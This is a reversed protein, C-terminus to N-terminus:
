DCKPESYLGGVGCPTQRLYKQRRAILPLNSCHQPSRHGDMKVAISFATEIISLFVFWDYIHPPQFEAVLALLRFRAASDLPEAPGTRRSGRRV